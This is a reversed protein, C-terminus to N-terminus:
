TFCLRFIPIIYPVRNGNVVKHRTHGLIHCMSLVFRCNEAAIKNLYTHGKGPYWASFAECWFNCLVLLFPFSLIICHGM